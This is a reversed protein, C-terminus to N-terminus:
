QTSRVQYHQVDGELEKIRDEAARLKVALQDATHVARECTEKAVDAAERLLAVIAQGSREVPDGDTAAEAKPTPAFPIIKKTATGPREVMVSFSRGIICLGCTARSGLMPPQRIRGCRYGCGTSFQAAGAAPGLRGLDGQRRRR